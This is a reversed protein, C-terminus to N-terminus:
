VKYNGLNELVTAGYELFREMSEHGIGTQQALDVWKGNCAKALELILEVISESEPSVQRMIIRAGQVGARTM